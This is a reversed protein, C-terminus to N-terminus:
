RRNGLSVAARVNNISSQLEEVQASVLQVKLLESRLEQSIAENAKKEALSQVIAKGVLVIFVICYFPSYAIAAFSAVLLIQDLSVNKV